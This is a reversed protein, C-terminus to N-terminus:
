VLATIVKLALNFTQKKLGADKQAQFDGSPEGTLYLLIQSTEWGSKCGSLRILQAQLGEVAVDHVDRGPSSIQTTTEHSVVLVGAQTIM